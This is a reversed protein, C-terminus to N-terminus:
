PMLQKVGDHEEWVFGYEFLQFGKVNKRVADFKLDPDAQRDLHQRLLKEAEPTLRTTPDFAFNKLERDLDAVEKELEKYRDLLARKVRAYDKSRFPEPARHAWKQAEARANYLRAVEAMQVGFAIEDRDQTAPDVVHVAYLEIPAKPRANPRPE